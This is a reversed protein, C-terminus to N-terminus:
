KIKPYLFFIFVLAAAMLLGALIMIWVTKNSEKRVKEQVKKSLKPEATKKATKAKAM